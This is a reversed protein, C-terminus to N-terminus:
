NEVYLFIDGYNFSINYGNEASLRNLTYLLKTVSDINIMKKKNYAIDYVTNMRVGSELSLKYLTIGIREAAEELTVITKGM